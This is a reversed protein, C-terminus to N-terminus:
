IQAAQLINEPTTPLGTDRLKYYAESLAQSSGGHSLYANKDTFYVGPIDVEYGQNKLNSLKAITQQQLVSGEPAKGMTSQYQQTMVDLQGALLTIAGQTIAHLNGKSAYVDLTKSWDDISKVDSAGTGKFFKALEDKLGNAETEATRITAKVNPDFTTSNNFKNISSFMSDNPLKSVTDAFSILHNISKNASLVGQAMQGSTLNKLYSSRTAFQKEDYTPDYMQALTVAQERSMGKAARTSWDTPNRSYDSIGKIALATMPGYKQSIADFVAQQSQPDPKGDSGMQASSIDNSVGDGLGYGAKFQDLALQKNKYNQDFHEQELKFARDFANQDKTEKFKDLDMQYDRQDQLAKVTSEYTDKIAASKDDLQKTLIDYNKNIKEYNKTQFDDELKAITTAAADDLMQIKSIGESVAGHIRGAMLEPTYEGGARFAAEAVTGEYSKNATRQVAENSALQSQLSSILAKQSSSLPITGQLVSNFRKALDNRQKQVADQASQFDGTADTIGQNAIDGATRPPTANPTNTNAAPTAVPQNNQPPPPTTVPANTGQALDVAQQKSKALSAATDAQSKQIDVGQQKINFDAQMQDTQKKAEALQAKQAATANAQSNLSATLEKVSNLKSQYDDNAGKTTIVPVNKSAGGGSVPPRYIGRSASLEVQHQRQADANYLNGHTANYGTPSNSAARPNYSMNHTINLLQQKVQQVRM